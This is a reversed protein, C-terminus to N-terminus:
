ADPAHALRQAARELAGVDREVFGLAGALVARAHTLLRRPKAACVGLGAPSRVAGGLGRRSPAGAHEVAGELRGGLPLSWDSWRFAEDFMSSAACGRACRPHGRICVRWAIRTSTSVM